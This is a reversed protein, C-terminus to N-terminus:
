ILYINNNPSVAALNKAGGAGGPFVVVDFERSMVSDLSTDPVLVVNRSCKVPDTGELGALTVDVQFPFFKSINYLYSM